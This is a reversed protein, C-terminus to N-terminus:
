KNPKKTKIRNLNADDKALNWTGYHMGLIINVPFSDKIAAVMKLHLGRASGGVFLSPALHLSDKDIMGDYDEATAWTFSSYVMGLFSVMLEPFPNMCKCEHISIMDKADVFYFSRKGNAYDDDYRSKVNKEKRFVAIDPTFAINPDIASRIRVQQRIQYEKDGDTVKVFSFNRPDGNPTTLYRFRGEQLNEVTVDASEEYFEVLSHFCGIEFAASVARESKSYTAKHISAFDKIKREISRLWQDDSM